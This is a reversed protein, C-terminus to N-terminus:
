PQLVTADLPQHNLLYAMGTETTTTTVATHGLVGFGLRNQINLDPIDGGLGWMSLRIM